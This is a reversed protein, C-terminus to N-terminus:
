VAEKGHNKVDQFFLNLVGNARTSFKNYHLFNLKCASITFKKNVGAHLSLGCVPHGDAAHPRRAPNGVQQGGAGGDGPGAEPWPACGAQGGHRPIGTQQALSLRDAPRVARLPQGREQITEDRHIDSGMREAFDERIMHRRNSTVYIAVNDPRLELGGELASKLASFGADQQEFSLDDIYLIFKQTHGSVLRTVATIEDLSNKALEIIRLNYFEPMNILSKITASKGTGSDGHLLVNNCPKGEHLCRTNKVVEERQWTYGIMDCYDIPDPNRVMTLTGKEWHFARGRAFLGVGNQRYSQLIPELELAAGRRLEPMAMVQALWDPPLKAAMARKLAAFDLQAARSLIELDYRALALYDAEVRCSAVARGFATDDYRLHCDLYDHLDKEERRVEFLLKGYSEVMAADKREMQELLALLAQMGPLKLLNRFVSLSRLQLALQELVCDGM